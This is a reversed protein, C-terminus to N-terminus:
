ITINFYKQAMCQDKKRQMVQVAGSRDRIVVSDDPIETQFVLADVGVSVRDGIPKNGIIKAGAALFLGKGLIPAPNGQEDADTNITVNQFVVLFDSYVANGIITGVPHGFLFINPLACKYSYFMGNLMKNLLILKDCIPKNASRKWLSNSFFYLFQSYQDSHMPSFMASGDQFYAPFTIHRFCFETRDLAEQFAAEVDQGIFRHQDPFFADLQRGVYSMLESTGMSIIM